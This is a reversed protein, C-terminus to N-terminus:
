QHAIVGLTSNDGKSSRRFADRSFFCPRGLHTDQVAAPYFCLQSLIVGVNAGEQYRLRLNGRVSVEYYVMKTAILAPTLCQVSITDYERDIAESLFSMVAQFRVLHISSM